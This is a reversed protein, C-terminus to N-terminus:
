GALEPPLRRVRGGRDVCALRTTGTAAVEGTEALYVTYALTISANRREQVQTRIALLDDYRTSRLYQAQVEVVQLLCGEEEM